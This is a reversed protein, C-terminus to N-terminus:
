GSTRSEEVDAAIKSQLVALDDIKEHARIFRECEVTLREGYLDGSFDHLHAELRGGHWYATAAPPGDCGGPHLLRGGGPTILAPRRM